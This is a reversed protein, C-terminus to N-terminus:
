NKRVEDIFKRFIALEESDNCFGTVPSRGSASYLSNGVSKRLEHLNYASYDVILSGIPLSFHWMFYIGEVTDMRPGKSLIESWFGPSSNEKSETCYVGITEDKIFTIACYMLTMRITCRTRYCWKNVVSIEVGVLKSKQHHRRLSNLRVAIEEWCM